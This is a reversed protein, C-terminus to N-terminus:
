QDVYAVGNDRRAAFSSVCRHRLATGEKREAADKTIM